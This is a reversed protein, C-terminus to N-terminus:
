KYQLVLISRNTSITACIVAGSHSDPFWELSSFVASVQMKRPFEALNLPLHSAIHLDTRTPHSATIQLTCSVEVKDQELM